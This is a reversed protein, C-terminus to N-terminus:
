HQKPYYLEYLFETLEQKSNFYFYFQADGKGLVINNSSLPFAIIRNYGEECDTIPYEFEKTCNNYFEVDKNYEGLIKKVEDITMRLKFKSHITQAYENDSRITADTCALLVILLFFSIIFYYKKM